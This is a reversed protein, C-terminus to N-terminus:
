PAAGKPASSLPTSRRRTVDRRGTCTAHLQRCAQLVPATWRPSGGADCWLPRDPDWGDTRGQAAWETAELLGLTPRLESAGLEVARRVAYLLELRDAYYPTLRRAFRLRCGTIRVSAAVTECMARYGDHSRCGALAYLAAVNANVCMDVPNPLIGDALWTSMAGQQVWPDEDGRLAYRRHPEVVEKVVRVLEELPRRGHLVLVINAVATDDADALLNPIKLRPTALGVPYFRFAGPRDPMECMEVFDLARAVAARVDARWAHERTAGLELVVSSTLFCNADELVCDPLEIRSRFEGDGGQSRLIRSLLDSM